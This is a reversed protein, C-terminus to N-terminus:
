SASHSHSLLTRPVHAFLSFRSLVLDEVRNLPQPLAATIRYNSLSYCFSASRSLDLKEVKGALRLLVLLQLPMALLTEV